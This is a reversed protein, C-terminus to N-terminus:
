ASKSRLKGRLLGLSILLGGALGLTSPEPIGATDPVTPITQIYGQVTTRGPFAGSNPAVIGTFGTTSVFTDGFEGSLAFTGGPGLQLPSWVISIPSSNSYVMGGQSIGVFAGTANATVDTFVLNFAFAGFFAGTGLARTSCNSCALYFAGLNVNSPTGTTSDGEPMFELTADAGFLSDLTLGAGQFGTGAANTNFVISTAGANAVMMFIAMVALFVTQGIRRLKM